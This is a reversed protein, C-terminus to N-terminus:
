DETPREAGDIVLIEVPGRQSELKLGLQEQLATFLSPGNPDLAQGNIFVPEGPARGARPLLSLDPTWHLDLDFDGALGTQDLVIRNTSPSLGIALRAMTVRRGSISGLGFLSPCESAARVPSPGPPPPPPPPAGAPVAIQLCEAGAAKLQAGLRRDSRAMVLGYVPLEKSETHSKLKLRDELLTRLMAQMQSFTAPGEPKAVIDFRASNMWSPGGEIQIDQLGFANRVLMRLTANTASFRGGPYGIAVLGGDSANPKVSAVEFALRPAPAQAQARTAHVSFAVGTLAISMAMVGPWRSSRRETGTPAGMLRQIRFLLSGGAAGMALSPLTVRLKEITTLARAYTVADGSTAVALDDCCLEREHRMQNSTWWVIPHYFLLAEVIMQLINVLYDHRRIHAFEHALVAELQQPTLGMVAAPPLLIVPRLWGLVSPGDVEESVLARVPGAIGMRVALGEVIQRVRDDAAEGRRRLSGSHAAGLVLRASCLLVGMSWMPLAWDQVGVLWSIRPSDASVAVAVPPTPEAAAPRPAAGADRVDAPRARQYLAVTTIVPLSVLMALAVSSAAYRANASRRRLAGLVAWLLLGVIAGQWIFHLLAASLAVTLASM